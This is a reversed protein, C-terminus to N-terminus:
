PLGSIPEPGTSRCRWRPARPRRLRMSRKAWDAVVADRSKGAASALMEGDPSLALAQTPTPAPKWRKIEKGAAGDWLAM